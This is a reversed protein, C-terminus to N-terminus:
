RAASAVGDEEAKLREYEERAQRARSDGTTAYCEARYKLSRAITWRRDRVGRPTRAARADRPLAADGREVALLWRLTNLRHDRMMDLAFPQVLLEAMRLALASDSAMPDCASIADIMVDRSPWPARRYGEIAQQLEPLAEAFHQEQALMTARLAHYEVPHSKAIREVWDHARPDHALVATEAATMAEMRTLPERPQRDWQALAESWEHHKWARGFMVREHTDDSSQGLYNQSWGDLMPIEAQHLTVLEWDVEEAGVLEPRGLGRAAAMEEIIADTDAKQGDSTSQGVTRAFGFEVVPRDDTNLPDNSGEAALASVARAVFHALVGELDDVGWASHLARSFPESAM